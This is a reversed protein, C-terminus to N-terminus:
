LRKQNSCLLLYLVICYLPALTPLALDNEPDTPLASFAKLNRPLYENNFNNKTANNNNQALLDM